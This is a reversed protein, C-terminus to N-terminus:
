PPAETLAPESLIGLPTSSTVSGSASSARMLWSLTSRPGAGAASATGVSPATAAPVVGAASPAALPAAGALPSLAAGAAPPLAAGSFFSSLPPLFPQDRGGGPGTACAQAGRAPGYLGGGAREPVGPDLP